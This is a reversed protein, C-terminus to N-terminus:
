HKMGFVVGLIDDPNELAKDMEVQVNELSMGHTTLCDVSLKGESILRMCLAINTKTTWRMFVPPYDPGYEWAEDHYGAGTRSARRIDLNTTVAPVTIIAGGVVVIRGMRHTDPSLKFSKELSQYAKTADGGFAIVAADLGMGGTFAKTKEVPDEPGILVTEDIGWGKAIDNRRKITDWGIVYNGALKYFMATLQGVLGLGAVATFEGFEPQGRRMAHLATASLMAYAGQAFTVNEPLKTCLNHPVVAYNSHQAYGAGIAAVRDGSKLDTVGKGVKEVIGANSYGFKQPKANPDPNAQKDKLNKFGGLETGPSVLSNHVEILVAGTKIEPIDEEVLGIHGTGLIAAVIRKKAM